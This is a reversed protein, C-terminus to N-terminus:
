LLFCIKLWIFPRASEVSLLECCIKACKRVSCVNESFRFSSLIVSIYFVELELFKDKM